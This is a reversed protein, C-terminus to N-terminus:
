PALQARTFAELLPGAAIGALIVGAASLVAAAAGVAALVPAPQAPRDFYVPALVRLYYALSVVSNAM